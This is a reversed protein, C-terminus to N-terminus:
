LIGFAVNRSDTVDLPVVLQIHINSAEDEGMMAEEAPLMHQPGSQSLQVILVEASLM